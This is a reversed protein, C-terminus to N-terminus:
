HRCELDDKLKERGSTRWRPTSSPIRSRRRRHQMRRKRRLIIKAILIQPNKRALLKTLPVM